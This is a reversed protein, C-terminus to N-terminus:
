WWQPAPRNKKWAAWPKDVSYFARYADVPWQEYPYDKIIEDYAAFCVPHKTLKGQPIFRAAWQLPKLLRSSAHIKGYRNTYENLMCRLLTLGYRYNARTERVWVSAPHMAHTTKYLQLEDGLDSHHRVATCLMQAEELPMKVIHKDCLAQAIAVPEEDVIFRNM